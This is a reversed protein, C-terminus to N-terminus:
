VDASEQDTHHSPTVLPHAAPDAAQETAPREAAREATPQDDPQETAPATAPAHHRARLMGAVVLAAALVTLAVGAISLAGGVAARHAADLHAAAVAGPVLAALVTGAVAVGAATAVESATDVLAAGVSTRDAPLGALVEAGAVAGVVRMGAAVLVLAVVVVPYGLPTAVVSVALGLVVAVSSTWAATRLGVRRVFPGVFRGSVLLVVVQPLTGVAALAPPWGWVVQLQLTVTWSLGATALGAAGKYLLGSAVLPRAVLRLDLLPAAATRQRLVFATAAALTAAIAWWTLPGGAAGGAAVAVTPTVLVGAVAATGLVAGLVDVPDRRLDSRRDADVGARIGVFAVLAVPANAVLLVQWPAVALVLGGVTPGVALGVLGATSIVTLARVRLDEVDFLRFALAMAGPTTMAAAVGTLARVVILGEVSTVAFTAVSVGALLVLGVLMVRRRGFRDAVAGFLLMLGGFALSYAGSVWQLAPTSADLDRGITPLAVTLVSNDLMEFLFVASLGALAIWADRLRQPSGPRTTPVSM